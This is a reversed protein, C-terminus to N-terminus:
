AICSFTSLVLYYFVFSLITLDHLFKFIQFCSSPEQLNKKSISPLYLIDDKSANDLGTATSRRLTGPSFYYFQGDKLDGGHYLSYLM